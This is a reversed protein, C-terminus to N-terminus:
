PRITVSGIAGRESRMTPPCRVGSSAESQIADREELECKAAQMASKLDALEVLQKIHHLAIEHAKELFSGNILRISTREGRLLKAVEMDWKEPSVVGRKSYKTAGLAYHAYYTGRPATRGSFGEGNTHRATGDNREDQTQRALLRVMATTLLFQRVTFNFTKGKSKFYSNDSLSAEIKQQTTQPKTTM